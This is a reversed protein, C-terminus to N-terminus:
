NRLASKRWIDFWVVLHFLLGTAFMYDALRGVGVAAAILGLILSATGLPAIVHHLFHCVAAVRAEVSHLSHLTNFHPRIKM